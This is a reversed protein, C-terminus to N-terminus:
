VVQEGGSEVPSRPSTFVSVAYDGGAFPDGEWTSFRDSLTLGAADALEDFTALDLRGPGLQFGAILRGGPHLHSALNVLVRGESGPALFIMVNGALVVVDFARGLACSALDARHWALEPAKERAAAVFGEDLDVGVVEVGRRALEVAVRGTGCGADLVSRPSYRLVFEVEGHPNRGSAALEKWRADYESADPRDTHGWRTGTM